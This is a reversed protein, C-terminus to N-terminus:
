DLEPAPVIRDFHRLIFVSANPLHLQSLDRGAHLPRLIPLRRLHGVHPLALDHLPHRNFIVSILQLQAILAPM